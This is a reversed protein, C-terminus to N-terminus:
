AANAGSVIGHLPIWVWEPRHDLEYRLEYFVKETEFLELLHRVNDASRPLLGPRSEEAIANVSGNFYGDIFADRCAREWEDARADGKGSVAAAYAFSRLMGAVDRLPSQRARRERLPRAPEGEFDIVLFRDTASRLVQGLHYDGHTRAVDGADAGIHAAIRSPRELLEDRRDLVARTERHLAHPLRRDRHAAELADLARAITRRASHCWATVDSASAPAPVFETGPAGSALTDHMARTITGLQRAEERFPVSEATADRGGTIFQSARRLAFTWGDVAGPVLEQLMGATTVGAEDEFRIAGLLVPVHAFQRELTLFRTVEVDPHVGPELKRYLKLIAEGEIIISSNTQEASALTLRAHPPVVLPKTGESEVIWRTASGERALITGRAFADVLGRRFAADDLADGFPADAPPLFLQYTSAGDETTVRARAIAYTASSAPWRAPIVDVIEAHRIARAKGGFWRRESLFAALADSTVHWAGAIM